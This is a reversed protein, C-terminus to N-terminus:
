TAPTPRTCTAPWRAAARAADGREIAESVRELFEARIAGDEDRLAAVADDRDHRTQDLM